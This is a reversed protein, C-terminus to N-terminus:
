EEVSLELVARRPVWISGGGPTRLEYGCADDSLVEPTPSMAVGLPVDPDLLCWM